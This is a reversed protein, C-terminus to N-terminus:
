KLRWKEAYDWYLQRAKRYVPGPQMHRQEFRIVPLVKGYNGTSFIEDAGILEDQKIVREEVKTGAGRLLEIVRRRTVGNLFTGNVAPTHAVGDKVIFINSTLFEAVNNEHDLAVANDFGRSEAERLGRGSNPYLAAGKLDTPAMDPAPRRVSAMTAAFGTPPPLPSIYVLLAFQTAKPDPYIWGDKAWYMPRIYLEANAPFKLVGEKSLAVLQEVTEKPELGMKRASDLARQCHQDIDPVCRDFARAGDFITSALWMAHDRPGIIQPNGEHWKGDFYTVLDM